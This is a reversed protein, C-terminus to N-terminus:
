KNPGLYSENKHDTNKKKKKKVFLLVLKRYKEVIVTGQSNNNLPETTDAEILNWPSCCIM